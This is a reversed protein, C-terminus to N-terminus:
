DIYLKEQDREPSIFVYSELNKVEERNMRHRLRHGPDKKTDYGWVISLENRGYLRGNERDWIAIHTNGLYPPDLEYVPGFYPIRDTNFYYEVFTATSM